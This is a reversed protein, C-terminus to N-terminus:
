KLPIPSEQTSNKCLYKVTHLLYLPITHLTLMGGVLEELTTHHSFWKTSLQFARQAHKHARRHVTSGFLPGPVTAM